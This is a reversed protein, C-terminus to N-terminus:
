KYSHNSRSLIQLIDTKQATSMPPFAILFKVVLNGRRGSKNNMMGENPIKLVTEPTVNNSSIPLLRNDLTPIQTRVGQLADELSVRCTYLLDDGDRTYLEHPKTSIMFIIDGPEMGPQEDGEREFTIKTGDKWGARIPISKDKQEKGGGLKSRTIRVKKTTQGTYLDELSVNLQHTVPQGKAKAAPGQQQQGGGAGMRAGMPFGSGMGGGMGMPFGGGMGGFNGDNEAAFPDGTGFFSKFIESPDIGGPGGSSFHFSPGGPFGNPMGGAGSPCSAGAEQARVGEEGGLDYMRRKEKDSLVGFATGIAKFKEEAEEKKKKDTHKDPHWKLAM